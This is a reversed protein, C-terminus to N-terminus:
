PKVVARGIIKGERILNLVQEVEDLDFIGTITSKVIGKKALNVVFELNRKTYAVSGLVKYEGVVLSLPSLELMDKAYGVIVYRGLKALSTFANAMAKKTGVLELAIDVGKEETFEKVTKPVDMSSANIIYDAGLEKAAKLKDEFIDVAITKLGLHKAIQLANLGLGGVGNILLAEGRRAQAVDVLSHYTAAVGCTLVAGLEFSVENPLKVLTQMPTKVYEAYGGDVTFGHQDLDDCLNEHGIKCYYCEMCNIGNNLVVRDGKRFGKVDEGLEVITGAIEHGLILPLEGKWPKLTGDLFHLDTHCVGAAKVKVLVEGSSPQPIEVDEVKLPEEPGYYRVAKLDLVWLRRNM